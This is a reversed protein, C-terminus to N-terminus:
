PVPLLLVQADVSDPRVVLYAGDRVITSTGDFYRELEVTGAPCARRTCALATGITLM